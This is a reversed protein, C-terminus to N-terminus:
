SNEIRQSWGVLEYADGMPGIWHGDILPLFARPLIIGKYRIQGYGAKAMEYIGEIKEHAAQLAAMVEPNKYLVEYKLLARVYPHTSLPSHLVAVAAALGPSIWVSDLTEIQADDGEVPLMTQGATGASQQSLATLEQERISERKRKSSEEDADPISAVDTRKPKGMVSSISFMNQFLSFLVENKKGQTGEKNGEIEGIAKGTNSIIENFTEERQKAARAENEQVEKVLRNFTELVEEEESPRLKKDSEVKVEGVPVVPIYVGDPGNMAIPEAIASSASLGAIVLLCSLLTGNKNM